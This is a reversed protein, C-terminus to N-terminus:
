LKAIWIEFPRMALSNEIQPLPGDEYNSLVQILKGYPFHEKFGQNDEDMNMIILLTDAKDIREFGVTYPNAKDLLRYKGSVLVPYEKRLLLIERYFNMVSSDERKMKELRESGAFYGSTDHVLQNIYSSTDKQTYIMTMILKAAALRYENSDHGLVLHRTNSFKQDVLLSDDTTKVSPEHLENKPMLKCAGSCILLALVLYKM